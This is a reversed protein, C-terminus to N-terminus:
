RQVFKAHFTEIIYAVFLTSEAVTLPSCVFRAKEKDVVLLLLNLGLLGVFNRIQCITLEFRLDAM